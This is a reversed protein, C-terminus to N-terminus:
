TINTANLEKSFYRKRASDYDLHDNKISWAIELLNSVGTMAVKRTPDGPLCHFGAKESTSIGEGNDTLTVYVITKADDGSMGEETDWKWRQNDTAGVTITSEGFDIWNIILHTIQEDMKDTTAKM